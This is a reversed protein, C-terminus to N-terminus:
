ESAGEEAVSLARDLSFTDGFTAALAKVDGPLADFEAQHQARGRYSRQFNSAVVSQVVSDDMMGWDRLQQPSGVLSQILRPLADFEERASYGSNCIARYVMGWAEQESMMAPTSIMRMKDKIVGIVPPFGKSDTAIFAKVAAAVLAPDDDAFMAAWLDVIGTLEEKGMGKYFNPYAARLVSLIEATERRDM